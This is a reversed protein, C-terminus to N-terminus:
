RIHTVRRLKKTHIMKAVRIYGYGIAALAIIGGAFGVASISYHEAVTGGMWTGCGIGLNFIGSFLSMAIASVDQPVAKIIEAQFSVNFAIAAMGWFACLIVITYINFAAPYLLFLAAAMSVTSANIFITRHGSYYHSFLFSGALGAAGFLMLVLTITHGGLGAVQDLFPEIYSYATYYASSVLFTILYIRILVPREVLKPVQHFTFMKGKSIKPFVYLLYILSAVTIVAICAFTMRWGVYLGISRGIPLGFIMAVSTGTVIMSLALSIHRPSVLRVAVPSAISWFVSHACAVGLRSVMLMAYSTSVASLVQCIGFFAITGLLIGRMNYKSAVIMLPLSLLTVVWSYASILMGAKAESIDFAHAIDSLLGIPMFESTNFIFAVVTLGLLPLWENLPLTEKM